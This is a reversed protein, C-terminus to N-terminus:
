NGDRNHRSKLAEIEFELKRISNRYSENQALSNNCKELVCLSGRSIDKIEVVLEEMKSLRRLHSRRASARNRTKRNELVTDREQASMSRVAQCTTGDVNRPYLLEEDYKKSCQMTGYAGVCNRKSNDEKAVLYESPGGFDLSIAPNEISVREATAEQRGGSMIELESIVNFSDKNHNLESINTVPLAKTAPTSIVERQSSDSLPDFYSVVRNPAIGQERQVITSINIQDMGEASTSHPAVCTNEEESNDVMDPIPYLFPTESHLTDWWSDSTSQEGSSLPKFPSNKRDVGESDYM